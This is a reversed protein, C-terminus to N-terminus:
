GNVIDGVINISITTGDTLQRFISRTTIGFEKNYAMAKLVIDSVYAQLAGSPEQNYYINVIPLM